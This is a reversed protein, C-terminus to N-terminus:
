AARGTGQPEEAQRRRWPLLDRLARHGMLGTPRTLMLVILLLSFLVMRPDINNPTYDKVGRLAERLITLLVAALVSGTISGMGGLVVMILVEFSKEFTFM